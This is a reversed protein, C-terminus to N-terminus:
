RPQKEHPGKASGPGNKPSVPRNSSPLRREQETQTRKLILVIEAKSEPRIEITQFDSYQTFNDVARVELRGAPVPLKKVPTAMLLPEGNIFVSIDPSSSRVDLDLYGTEAKKLTEDFTQASETFTVKKSIRAYGSRILDITVTRDAEISLEHPTHAITNDKLAIPKGDVYIDAGAPNSTIMVRLFNTPVDTSSSTQQQVPPPLPLGVNALPGEIWPRIPEIASMSEPHSRTYLVAITVSGLMFLLFIAFTMLTDTWSGSATTDYLSGRDFSKPVVNNGGRRAVNDVEVVHSLPRVGAQQPRTMSSFSPAQVAAADGAAQSGVLPKLSKQNHNGNGRTEEPPNFTKLEIRQSRTEQRSAASKTVHENQANLLANGMASPTPKFPTPASKGKTEQPEQSTTVETKQEEVFTDESSEKREIRLQAYEVMRERLKEREDVWHETMFIGFDQPSFDPYNQNLFRNLDRHLEDATQYRYNRDKSLVKQTIRELEQPISPDIKRLPKIVCEQIKRLTNIENSAYFLRENALLEWLVIGLSFIDTRYDMELGNAQEPSMYGFKGKLTGAQTNELKSEAKAIGFDVIKVEGDFSMMINQPSIDRHIINLPRGTTSDKCRHAYDLGKAVENILYVIHELQFRTNIKAMKQLIERLNRGEVFEMILFFHGREEGFEITSVVNRHQLQIAIKAEEKFMEIFSKDQSLKPLIRKVAFFKSVNEVGQSRALYVEAMGGAALRELLIYKGFFEPKQSM